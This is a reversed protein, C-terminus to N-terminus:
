KELEELRQGIDVLKKQLFENQAKFIGVEEKYVSILDKLTVKIDAIDQPNGGSGGVVKINQVLKNTDQQAAYIDGLNKQLTANVSTQVQEFSEKTQSRLDTQLTKLFEYLFSLKANVDAFAKGMAPGGGGGAGGALQQNITEIQTALIRLEERFQQDPRQKQAGFDLAM